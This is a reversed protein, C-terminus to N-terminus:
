RTSPSVVIDVRRKCQRDSAPCDPATDPHGVATAVDIGLGTLLNRVANARATALGRNVDPTAQAETYGDVTVVGPGNATIEGAITTLTKRGAASITADNPAFLVQSDVQYRTSGDPQRVGHEPPPFTVTPDDKADKAAEQGGGDVFPVPDTSVECPTAGTSECLTTWLSRLWDLQSSSPQPQDVAPHGIGIMTAAVGSLGDDKSAGRECLQRIPEITRRDSISAHTLDTCGVTSLGDTAVVVKKPGRVDRLVQGGMTLAGMVDTGPTRAADRAAVALSSRLCKAAATDDARRRGPNEHGRDTVLSDARWRVTAASGDFTGISVIDHTTVTATVVDTLAEEYDPAEGGEASGSRDMLIVTHGAGEAPAITTMWECSGEPQQPELSCGTLAVSGLVVTALTGALRRGAQAVGTV